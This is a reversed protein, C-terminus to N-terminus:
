SVRSETVKTNSSPESCSDCGPCGVDAGGSPLSLMGRLHKVLSFIAMGVIVGVAGEQWYM